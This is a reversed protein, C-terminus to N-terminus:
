RTLSLILVTCNGHRYVEPVKRPGNRLGDGYVVCGPGHLMDPVTSYCILSWQVVDFLKTDSTAPRSGALGYYFERGCHFGNHLLCPKSKLSRALPTAVPLIQTDMPKRPIAMNPTRGYTWCPTSHIVITRKRDVRCVFPLLNLGPVFTLCHPAQALRRGKSSVKRVGRRSYTPGQRPRPVLHSRVPEEVVLNDRRVVLQDLISMAVEEM